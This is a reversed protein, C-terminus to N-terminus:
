PNVREEVAVAADGPQHRMRRQEVGEVGCADPRNRATEGAIDLGVFGVEGGAIERAAVIEVASSMEAFLVERRERAEEEGGANILDGEHFPQHM